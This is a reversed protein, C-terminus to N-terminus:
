VQGNLLCEKFIIHASIFMKAVENLDPQSRFNEKIYEIAKAIRYYNNM